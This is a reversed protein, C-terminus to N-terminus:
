FPASQICLAANAGHQVREVANLLMRTVCDNSAGKEIILPTGAGTKKAIRGEHAARRQRM